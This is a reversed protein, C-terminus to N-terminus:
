DHLYGGRRRARRKDRAEYIRNASVLCVAGLAIAGWIILLTCVIAAATM